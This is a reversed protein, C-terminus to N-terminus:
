MTKVLQEIRHLIEAKDKDADKFTWHEGNTTTIDVRQRKSFWPFSIRITIGPKAKRGKTFTVSSYTHKNTRCKYVFDSGVLPQALQWLEEPIDFRFKERFGWYILVPPILLIFVLVCCVLIALIILITTM